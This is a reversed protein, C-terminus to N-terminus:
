RSVHDEIPTATTMSATKDPPSGCRSQAQTYSSPTAPALSIRWVPANLERARIRIRIRVSVSIIVIVIVITGASTDVSARAHANM